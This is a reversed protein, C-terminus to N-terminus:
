KIRQHGRGSASVAADAEAFVPKHRIIADRAEYPDRAAAVVTIAPDRSLNQILLERFVLSDDVVLVKISRM